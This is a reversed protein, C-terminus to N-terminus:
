LSVRIPHVLYVGFAICRCVSLLTRGECVSEKLMVYITSLM